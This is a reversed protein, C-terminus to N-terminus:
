SSPNSPSTPTPSPTPTVQIEKLVVDDIACDVLLDIGGGQRPQHPPCSPTGSGQGSGSMIYYETENGYSAVWKWQYVTVTVENSEPTSTEKVIPAEAPAETVETTAVGGCATLVFSTIILLLTAVSATRKRM